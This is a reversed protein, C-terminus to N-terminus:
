APDRELHWYLVSATGLQGLCFPIAMAWPAFATSRDALTINYVGTALYFVGVLSIPKPLLRCSAFVGLSFIMAWLGPLMWLSAPAFEVLGEEAISAGWCLHDDSVFAITPSYRHTQESELAADGRKGLLNPELSFQLAGDFKCTREALSIIGHDSLPQHM